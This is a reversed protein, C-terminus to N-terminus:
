LIGNQILLANIVIEKKNFPLVENDFMYIVFDRESMGMMEYVELDICKFIYDVDIDTAYVPINNLTYLNSLKGLLINERTSIVELYNPDNDYGYSPVREATYVSNPDERDNTTMIHNIVSDRSGVYREFSMGGDTKLLLVLQHLYLRSENLSVTRYKVSSSTGTKRLRKPKEVSYEGSIKCLNEEKDFYFVDKGDSFIVGNYGNDDESSVYQRTIFATILTELMYTMDKRVVYFKETLSDYFKYYKKDSKMVGKLAEYDSVGLYKRAKSVSYIGDKKKIVPYDIYGRGLALEVEADLEGATSYKKEKLYIREKM